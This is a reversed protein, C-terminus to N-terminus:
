LSGSFKAVAVCLEIFEERSLIGKARNVKAHVIQMNDMMHSGEQSLPIIHDGHANAPTLDWGTMACKYGQSKILQDIKAITVDSKRSGNSATQVVTTPGNSGHKNQTEPVILRWLGNQIFSVFLLSGLERSGPEINERKGLNV